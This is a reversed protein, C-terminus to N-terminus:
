NRWTGGDRRVYDRLTIRFGKAAATRSREVGRVNELSQSFSRVRGPEEGQDEAWMRWDRYLDSTSTFGGNDCRAKVWTAMLNEEAVYDATAVKCIQPPALDEKQWRLAGQIAWSLIGAAEARLKESLERDRENVPIVNDFPVLVLRDIIASDINRFSPRTNAAIMLKFTPRFTSFSEYMNRATISDSGGTLWKLRGEKWRKGAEIESSIVSRAGKLRAIECSHADYSNATFVDSPCTVSYDGWVHHLTELYTSKGSSGPGYIFYLSREVTSGTLAYGNTRQIYSQLEADGKTTTQLFANWRPCTGGPAVATLKTILDEGTAPRLIGTTLDVTGAPTGLLFPNADLQDPQIMLTQDMRVLKEVATITRASAMGKAKAVDELLLSQERCVERVLAPLAGTTDSEWRIGNWLYPTGAAIRIDQGHQQVVLLALADDSGAPSEGTVTARPEYMKRLKEWDLDACSKHLCGAAIGGSPFQVVYATRRHDANLPCTSLIYKRGDNWEAERNLDLNYKQLWASVDLKKGKSAPPRPNVPMKAAVLELMERTVLAPEQKEDFSELRAIRHPRDADAEGKANLTGYLRCIRGANFTTEDVVIANDSFQLALAGLVRRILDRSTTDNPLDIVYLLHGGNGSDAAIGAPWGLSLLYERCDRARATAADHEADTASTGATRVPDFDILLWIRRLVDDDTAAQGKKCFIIENPARVILEPKLPNLTLYVGAAQGSWAMAAALLKDSDDFYGHMVGQAPNLIRLETVQGPELLLWAARIIEMDDVLMPPVAITATMM